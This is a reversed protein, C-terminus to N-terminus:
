HSGASRSFIGDIRHLARALRGNGLHRVTAVSLMPVDTPPLNRAINCCGSGNSPRMNDITVACVCVRAKDFQFKKLFLNRGMM